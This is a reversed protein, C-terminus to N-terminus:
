MNLISVVIELADQLNNARFDSLSRIMAHDHVKDVVVIRPKRFADAWGFEICTGISVQKLKPPFYFLVADSRMVDMRDRATIADDTSIPYEEYGDKIKNQNQLYHKSRMPSVGIIGYDILYKQAEVRWDLSKGYSQGTIPGALYVSPKVISM